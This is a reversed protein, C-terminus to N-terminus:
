YENFQVHSGAVPGIIVIFNVLEWREESDFLKDLGFKLM